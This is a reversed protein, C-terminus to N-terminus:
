GSPTTVSIRERVAVNKVSDVIAAGDGDLSFSPHQIGFKM